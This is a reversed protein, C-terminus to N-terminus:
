PSPEFCDPRATEYRFTSRECAALACARRESYARSDILWRAAARREGTTPLLRLLVETLAVADEERRSLTQRLLANIAELERIRAIAASGEAGFKRRWADSTGALEACGPFGSSWASEVAKLAKAVM